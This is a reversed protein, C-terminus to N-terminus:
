PLDFPLQVGEHPMCHTCTREADVQEIAEHVLQKFPVLNREFEAFVDVARVGQGHEVGADVDTVLAIAAYCMELERALVSEPYGTMNVLRFGQDAFWRSEARTSFRPGQIVVMAGGDVVGPLGTVAARLSPCYPDAFGVHIGGSDFYTDPRGSTRDVLQDPVVMAGPGLQPDLSGVACPGFVRRVGLARLAWMNARYPVTHPSYEHRVGHRPLFAVEHAGVSGVTIAASPPGYPTDVTVSRADSGFFSYFGSGGIVGLVPSRM